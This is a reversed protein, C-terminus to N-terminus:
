KGGQRAVPCGYLGESRIYDLVAAPLEGSVDEGVAIRGRLETSSVPLQPADIFRLDFRVPSEAHAKKVRAVDVGPRAAVVFCALEALRPAGKWHVLSCASDAGLIFYLRAGPRELSLEELTDVTYTVGEREVERCDLSFGEQGEIALEVMRVRESAPAIEQGQKFNPNGTPMFLVHSLGLEDKACRALALHGNHIPDFTGGLIGVDEDLM